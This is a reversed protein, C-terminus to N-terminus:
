KVRQLTDKILKKAEILVDAVKNRERVLRTKLLKFDDSEPNLTALRATPQLVPIPRTTETRGYTDQDYKGVLTYGVPMLIRSLRMLCRNIAEFEQPPKGEKLMRGITRDLKAAEGKLAEAQNILPTLEITGKGKSQLDTLAEIFEQAYSVFEFPIVPSNCLRFILAGYMKLAKELAPLDVKDPTDEASHYWWGLYPKGPLPRTNGWLSPLGIGWFSQDGTKAPRRFSEFTLKGREVEKEGLTDEVTELHFRVTEKSGTGGYYLTDKMGPSDCNMYVIAHKNLDDWFNDM